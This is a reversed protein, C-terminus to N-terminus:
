IPWGHLMIFSYHQKAHEKSIFTAKTSEAKALSSLLPLAAQQAQRTEYQMMAVCLNDSCNLQLLTGLEHHSLQQQLEQQRHYTSSNTAHRELEWMAQQLQDPTSTLVNETLNVTSADAEFQILQVLDPIVFAQNDEVPAKVSRKAASQSNTETQELPIVAPLPAANALTIQQVSSKEVATPSVPQQKVSWKGAQYILSGAIILALFIMVTKLM